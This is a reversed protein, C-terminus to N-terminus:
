SIKIEKKPIDVHKTKPLRLYLIGEKYSAKINDEDVNEPLAFSRSFSSYSFEKRSYGSDTSETKAEKESSIQLIGNEIDVHFDNKEMGPAALEIVFEKEKEQINAAPIDSTWENERNTLWRDEDFLDSFLTPMSSFLRPRKVLLSM